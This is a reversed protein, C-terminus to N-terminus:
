LFSRCRTLCRASAPAVSWTTRRSVPSRGSCKWWTGAGRAHTGPARQPNETLPRLGAGRCNPDTWAQFVSERPGRTGIERNAPPRRGDATGPARRSNSHGGKCSAACLLIANLGSRASTRLRPQPRRATVRYACPTIRLVAPDRCPGATRRAPTGCACVARPRWSIADLGPSVVPACCCTKRRMWWPAIGSRLIRNTKANARVLRQGM